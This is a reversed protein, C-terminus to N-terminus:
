GRRRKSDWRCILVLRRAQSIRVIRQHSAARLGCAGIVPRLIAGADFCM